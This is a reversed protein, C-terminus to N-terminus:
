RAAPGGSHRDEQGLYTFEGRHTLRNVRHTITVGGLQELAKALDALAAGVCVVGAAVRGGFKGLEDSCRLGGAHRDGLDGALRLQGALPHVLDESAFVLCGATTRAARGAGLSTRQRSPRRMPRAFMVLAGDTALAATVTDDSPPRLSPDNRLPRHCRTCYWRTTDSM